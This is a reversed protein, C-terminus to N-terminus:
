KLRIHQGVRLTGSSRIGNMRCLASVSTGYRRAIASLTDGRRVVHTRANRVALTGEFHGKHLRLEDALLEGEEVDFLVSPDIAEGLYRVEFHLHSGTSRGTNGGLGLVEGAELLDGEQVLRRSLHAYLTELGNPHRVVVVHGYGRDYRSIRVRGSFASVVTDGTRLKIDVGQHMRGHRPGFGSTIRGCVPFFHDCPAHALRLEVTDKVHEAKLQHRFIRDTTWSRYLAHSPLHYLSDSESWATSVEAAEGGPANDFVTEEDGGGIATTDVQASLGPALLLLLIHLSRRNM